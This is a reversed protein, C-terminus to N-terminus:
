ACLTEKLSARSIIGMKPQALVDYGILVDSPVYIIALDYVTALQMASSNQSPQKLNTGSPNM